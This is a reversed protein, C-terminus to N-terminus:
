AQAAWGAELLVQACTKCYAGSWARQPDALLVTGVADCHPTGQLETPKEDQYANGCWVASDDIM